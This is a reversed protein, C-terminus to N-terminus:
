AHAFGSQVLDDTIAAGYVRCFKKRVEASTAKGDSFREAVELAKLAINPECSFGFYRSSAIAFLRLKRDSAKGRLYQIMPQPDDCALWEAETMPKIGEGAAFGGGLLGSCARRVTPLPESDGHQHM